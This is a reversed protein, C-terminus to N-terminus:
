EKTNTALNLGFLSIPYTITVLLWYEVEAFFINSNTTLPINMTPPLPYEDESDDHRFTIPFPFDFPILGPCHTPTTISSASAAKYLGHTDRLFHVTRGGTTIM